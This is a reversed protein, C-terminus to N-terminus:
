RAVRGQWEREGSPRPGVPLPDDPGLFPAPTDLVPVLAPEGGGTVELRVPKHPRLPADVLIEEVGVETQITFGPALTM